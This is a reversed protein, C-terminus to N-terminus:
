RVAIVECWAGSAQDSVFGMNFDAVRTAGRPFQRYITRAAQGIETGSAGTLTCKVTIDKVARPLSNRVTFSAAMVTGFGAKGWTFDTIKVRDVDSPPVLVAPNKPVYEGKTVLAHQIEADLRANDSQSPAAPEHRLVAFMMLGVVLFVALWGRM